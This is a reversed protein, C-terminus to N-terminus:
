LMDLALLCALMCSSYWPSAESPEGTIPDLEQGFPLRSNKWASLWKLMVERMEKEKGYKPMWRTLRLITLGQTYYGWQNSMLKKKWGEDSVSVSPFPYPTRFEHENWLHKYFIRDLLEKDAVGECLVNTIGIHRCIIKQGNKNVDYFFLDNKDFCLEFIKHRVAEAKNKWEESESDLCLLEAMQSLAMRDGYFVANMDAAIVPAVECGKPPVAANECINGPYKMGNLRCSNDHGTDYGCFMEILGKGQTMRNRVQWEDWKCLVQYSEKIFGLDHTMRYIDLCLSGVSVCEQIHSYLAGKAYPYDDRYVVAPLQGDPKQHKFFLRIQNLAVSCDGTYKAWVVPDYLHELWVGPYLNSICLVPGDSNSINTLHENKMHEIITKKMEEKEAPTIILNRNM